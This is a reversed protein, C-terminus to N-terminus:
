LQVEDHLNVETKRKQSRNKIMNAISLANGNERDTYKVAKFDTM